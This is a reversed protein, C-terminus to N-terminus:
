KKKLEMTKADIAQILSLALEKIEYSPLKEYNESIYARKSSFNDLFQKEERDQIYYAVSDKMKNQEVVWLKKIQIQSILKAYNKYFPIKNLCNPKCSKFLAGEMILYDSAFKVGNKAAVNSIRDEPNENAALPVKSAKNL